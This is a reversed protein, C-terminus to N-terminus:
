GSQDVLYDEFSYGEKGANTTRSWARYLELEREKEKLLKRNRDGRSEIERPGPFVTELLDTLDTDEPGWKVWAIYILRGVAVFPWVFWGLLLGFTAGFLYDVPDGMDRGLWGAAFWICWLWGLLFGIFLVTDIM